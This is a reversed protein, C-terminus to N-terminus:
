RREAIPAAGGKSALSTEKGISAVSLEGAATMLRLRTSQWESLCRVREQQADALASQTALLELIDSAGKAYRRRSSALADTAARQLAESAELNSQASVAATYAKIVETLVEHVADEAQAKSVEVQAQAGRIKYTRTFGEFLPITLMVGVTVVNSRTSQLGQNPYGNQYFNGTLDLSPMGEARVAKVKAASVDQQARAAAIAPHSASAEDLWQTLAKLQRPEATAELEVLTISTGPTVGMAYSLVALSSVYDAKARQEALRAKALATKAQLTDSQAAAGGQERRLTADLTQQAMRAADIHAAMAARNTQADFYAGVVSATIKQVAADRSLLAAQLSRSAVERNAARTGFDLLRWNLAINTTHGDTSMNSGPQGPYVTRSHLQSATATLTPLNAARAEGLAGAVVGITAESAKLQPNTCLALKIADSLALPQTVDTPTGCVPQQGNGPLSRAMQAVASRTSLPDELVDPVDVAHALSPPIVGACVVLLSRLVHQCPRM